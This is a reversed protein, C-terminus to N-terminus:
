AEFKQHHHQMAQQYHSALSDDVEEEFLQSVMAYQALSPMEPDDDENSTTATAAPSVSPPARGPHCPRLNLYLNNDWLHYARCIKEALPIMAM